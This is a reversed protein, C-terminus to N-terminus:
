VMGKKLIIKVPYRKFEKLKFSLQITNEAPWITRQFKNKYNGKEIGMFKMPNASKVLLETIKM